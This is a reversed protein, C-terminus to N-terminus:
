VGLQGESSVRISAVTHLHPHIGCRIRVTIDIGCPRLYEPIEVHLNLKHLVVRKGIRTGVLRHAIYHTFLAHLYSLPKRRFRNGRHGFDAVLEGLPIIPKLCRSTLFSPYILILIEHRAKDGRIRIQHFNGEPYHISLSSIGGLTGGDRYTSGRLVIAIIPM